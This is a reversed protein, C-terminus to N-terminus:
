KELAKRQALIVKVEECSRKAEDIYSLTVTSNSLRNNLQQAVCETPDSDAAAKIQETTAVTKRYNVDQVMTYVGTIITSIFALMFIAFGLNFVSFEGRYDYFFYRWARRPFTFIPAILWGARLIRRSWMRRTGSRM